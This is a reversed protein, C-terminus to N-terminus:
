GGYKRSFYYGDERDIESAILELDGYTLTGGSKWWVKGLKKIMGDWHSAQFETDWAPNYYKPNLKSVGASATATAQLAALKAQEAPTAPTTIQGSHDENRLDAARKTLVPDGAVIELIVDPDLPNGRHATTRSHNPPAYLFDSPDYISLDCQGGFVHHEFFVALQRAEDRSILRSIDVVVRFKPQVPKDSFSSYTFHTLDLGLSEFGDTVAAENIMPLPRDNDVDFIAVSVADTEGEGDRWYATKTYHDPKGPEIKSVRFTKEREIFMTATWGYCEKKNTSPKPYRLSQLVHRQLEEFTGFVHDRTIRNFSLEPLPSKNPKIGVRTMDSVVYQGHGATSAKQAGEPLHNM